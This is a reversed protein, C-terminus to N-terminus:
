IYLEYLRLMNQYMIYVIFYDPVVTDSIGTKLGAPCNVSFIALMGFIIWIWNRDVDKSQHHASYLIHLAFFKM